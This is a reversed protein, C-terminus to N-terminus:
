NNEKMRQLLRKRKNRSKSKRSGKCGRRGKGKCKTESDRRQVALSFGYTNQALFRESGKKFIITHINWDGDDRKKSVENIVLTIAHEYVGQMYTMTYGGFTTEVIKSTNLSIKPNTLMNLNRNKGAFARAYIYHEDTFPFSSKVKVQLVVEEHKKVHIALRQTVQGVGESSTTIPVSLALFIVLVQYHRREMEIARRITYSRNM